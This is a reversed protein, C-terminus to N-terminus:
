KWKVRLGLEVRGDIDLVSAFEVLRDDTVRVFGISGLARTGLGWILGFGYVFVAGSDMHKGIEGRGEVLEDIPQRYCVSVTSYLLPLVHVGPM